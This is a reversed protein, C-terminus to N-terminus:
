RGILVLLAQSKLVMHKVLCMVNYGFTYLHEDTMDLLAVLQPPFLLTTGIIVVLQTVLSPLPSSISSAAPFLHQTLQASAHVFWLCLLDQCCSCTGRM